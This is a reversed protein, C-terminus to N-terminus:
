KKVKEGAVGERLETKSARKGENGRQQRAELALSGEQQFDANSETKRLPGLETEGRHVTENRAEQGRM